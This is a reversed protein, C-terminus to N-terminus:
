EGPLTAKAEMAQALMAERAVTAEVLRAREALKPAVLPAESLEPQPVPRRAAATAAVLAVLACGRFCVTCHAAGGLDGSETRKAGLTSHPEGTM